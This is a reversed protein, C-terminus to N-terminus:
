WSTNLWGTTVNYKYKVRPKKVDKIDIRIVYTVANKGGGSNGAILLQLLFMTRSPRVSNVCLKYNMCSANTGLVHHHDTNQHNRHKNFFPNTAPRKKKVNRRRNERNRERRVWKKSLDPKKTSTPTTLPPLILSFDCVHLMLVNCIHVISLLQKFFNSCFLKLVEFSFFPFYLWFLSFVVHSM